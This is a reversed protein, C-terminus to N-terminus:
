SRGVSGLRVAAAPHTPAPHRRCDPPSTLLFVHHLDRPPLFIKIFFFPYHPSILFPLLFDLGSIESRIAGFNM